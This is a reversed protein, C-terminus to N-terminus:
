SKSANNLEKSRKKRMKPRMKPKEPERSSYAQSELGRKPKLHSQLLTLTEDFLPGDRQTHTHSEGQEAINTDM